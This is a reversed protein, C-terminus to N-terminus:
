EEKKSWYSCYPCYKWLPELEKKCNKCYPDEEDHWRDRKHYWIQYIIIVVPTFTAIQKVLFILSGEDYATFILIGFGIALLVHYILSLDRVERHKHIKYIQFWYSVCLFAIAMWSLIVM